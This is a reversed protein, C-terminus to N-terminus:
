YLFIHSQPPEQSLSPEQPSIQPSEGHLEPLVHRKKWWRACFGIITALTPIAVFLPFLVYWMDILLFFPCLVFEVLLEGINASRMSEMEKMGSSILLVLLSLFFTFWCDRLRMKKWRLLCIVFPIGFFFVIIALIKASAVATAEAMAEGFTRVLTEYETM